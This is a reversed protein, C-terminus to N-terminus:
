KTAADPVFTILAIDEALLYVNALEVDINVDPCFVSNTCAFSKNNINFPKSPVPNKSPAPKLVAPVYGLEGGEALVPAHNLFKKNKPPAVLSVSKRYKELLKSGVL